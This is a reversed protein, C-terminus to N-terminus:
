SEEMTEDPEPLLVVKSDVHSVKVMVKTALLSIVICRV